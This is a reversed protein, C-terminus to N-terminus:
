WRHRVDDYRRDRWGDYRRHDDRYRVDRYRDYRRYRPTEGEYRVGGYLAGGLGLAAVAPNHTAVGVLGLVGGAVSLDRWQNRFEHRREHRDYWRDASAAMPLALALSATAFLLSIRKM